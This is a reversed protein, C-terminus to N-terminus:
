ATSAGPGALQRQAAKQAAALRRRWSKPLNEGFLDRYRRLYRIRREPSDMPNALFLLDTAVMHRIAVFPLPSDLPRFRPAHIGPMPHHPFFEGLMMGVDVFEPKLAYQVDAVQRAMEECPAGYPVVAVALYSAEAGLASAERLFAGRVRRITTELGGSGRSADYTRVRVTGLSWATPMFPCVPGSRGLHPHTDTLFTRM